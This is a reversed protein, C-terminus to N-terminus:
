PIRQWRVPNVGAGSARGGETEVLELVLKRSAGIMGAAMAPNLAPLNAAHIQSNRFERGAHLVYQGENGLLGRAEAQEILRAFSV